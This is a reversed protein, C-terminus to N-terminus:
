KSRVQFWTFLQSLKMVVFAEGPDGKGNRKAVVVCPLGANAAETTSEEVWQPFSYTRCNKCELVLKPPSGVDVDGEDLAGALAKRKAPIGKAIIYNTVATEFSTGKQKAKSM